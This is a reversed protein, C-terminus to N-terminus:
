IREDKQKASAWLEDLTATRITGDPQGKAAWRAEPVEEKPRAEQWALAMYRAADAAHSTWDHLPRDRFVKKDSDWERRYLKM